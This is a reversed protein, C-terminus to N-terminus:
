NIRTLIRWCGKILASYGVDFLNDWNLYNVSINLEKSWWTLFYYKYPSCCCCCCCCCCYYYYYYYNPQSFCFHVFAFLSVSLWLTTTAKQDQVRKLNWAKWPRLKHTWSCVWLCHSLAIDNCGGGTQLALPLPETCHWQLRQKKWDCNCHVFAIDNCGAIIWFGLPM